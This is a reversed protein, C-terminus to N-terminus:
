TLQTPFRRRWATPLMHEDRRRRGDRHDSTAGLAHQGGSIRHPGSTRGFSVAFCPSEASAPSVAASLSTERCSARRDGALTTLGGGVLAPDRADLRACGRSQGGHHAPWEVRHAQHDAVGVDSGLMEREHADPLKASKIKKTSRATRVRPRRASRTGRGTRHRGEGPRFGAHHGAVHRDDVVPVRFGQDLDPSAPSTLQHVLVCWLESCSSGGKRTISLPITATLHSDERPVRPHTGRAQESM